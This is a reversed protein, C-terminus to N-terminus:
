WVPHGSVAFRSRQIIGIHRIHTAAQEVERLFQSSLFVTTGFTQPLSRIMKGMHRMGAPDLGTTPADLILLDPERM